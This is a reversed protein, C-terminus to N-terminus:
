MIRLRRSYNYRGTLNPDMPRILAGGNNCLKQEGRHEVIRFFKGKDENFWLQQSKKM